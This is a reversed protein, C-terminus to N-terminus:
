LQELRDCLSQATLLGFQDACAPDALVDLLLWRLREGAVRDVGITHAVLRPVLEPDFEHLDVVLGALPEDPSLDSTSTRLLDAFSEAALELFCARDLRSLLCLSVLVGQGARRAARIRDVVVAQVRERSLRCVARLGGRPAEPESADESDSLITSRFRLNPPLGFAEIGFRIELPWTGREIAEMFKWFLEPQEGSESTDPEDPEDHM